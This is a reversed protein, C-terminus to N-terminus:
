QNDANEHHLASETSPEIPRVVVRGNEVITRLQHSQKKPKALPSEALCDHQRLTQQNELVKVYGTCAATPCSM